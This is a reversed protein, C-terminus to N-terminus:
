AKVVARRQWDRHLKMQGVVSERRMSSQARLNQKEEQEIPFCVVPFSCVVGLGGAEKPWPCFDATARVLEVFSQGAMLKAVRRATVIAPLDPHIM